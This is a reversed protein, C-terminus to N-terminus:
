KKRLFLSQFHFDPKNSNIDIKQFEIIEFRGQVVKLLKDDSLFSFFRPLNMKSKDITTEEKDIGGYVGYFFIGREKLADAINNLVNKLDKKPVHLLVNLSFVSDYTQNLSPPNYLDVVKANLGRKKCMKIMEESLDTALVDFGEDQFYKADLGAGSGLELISRKHEDKLLKVFKQRLDLKWKDRKGEAENRRKADKDYAKALQQKFDM